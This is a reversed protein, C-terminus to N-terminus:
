VEADDDLPVGPWNLSARAREATEPPLAFWRRHRFVVWWKRGQVRACQAAYHHAEPLTKFKM